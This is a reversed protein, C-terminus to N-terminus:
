SMSKKNEKKEQWGGKVLSNLRFEMAPDDMGTDVLLYRCDTGQRGASRGLYGLLALHECTRRTQTESWGIRLRLEKRTFPIQCQQLDSKEDNAKLQQYKENVLEVIHKLLTRGTPSVDDVNRAFIEKGLTLALEVDKECAQIYEMKSGDARQLTGIKRQYQHLLTIAKVLSLFKGQERRMQLMGYPWFVKLDDPFVVPLSRLLRQMNHQLRTITSDDCTFQYWSVTNKTRQAQLIKETQESSEDITLILFRQKTEDDLADPNTTSVFVVVPGSVSYEDVSFKGTKADTRTAAVSLKQSSILTKISYMAEQMGGDEEIALVKNKLANADRYFLSQGTLRTYQIVSEPPVFKCITNQLNTKGAGPRSLFLLSIPDPQLRSTVAFIGILKNTKEGIYGLSEFADLIVTILDKSKLVELAERKEEESMPAAVTGTQQTERMAIREIELSAILLSLEAMVITQQAKLYKTCGEAFSERARSQYLDLTDVHFLGGASPEASQAKLTIRLRELNYQTLGTIRYLLHEGEYHLGEASRSLRSPESMPSAGKM